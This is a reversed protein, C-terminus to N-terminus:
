RYQSLLAAGEVVIRDGDVLALSAAPLGAGSCSPLKRAEYREAERAAEIAEQGTILGAIRGFEDLFRVANEPSTTRRQLHDFAEWDARTGDPVCEVFNRLVDVDKRFTPPLQFLLAALKPGLTAAPPM